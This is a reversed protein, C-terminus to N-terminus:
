AALPALARREIGRGDGLRRRLRACSCTLVVVARPPPRGPEVTPGLTPYDRLPCGLVRATCTLLRLSAPVDSAAKAFDVSRALWALDFVGEDPDVAVFLLYLDERAAFTADRVQTCVDGEVVTFECSRRPNTADAFSV